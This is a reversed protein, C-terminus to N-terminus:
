RPQKEFTKLQNTGTILYINGMNDVSFNTYSGKITQTLKFTLLTDPSAKISDVSLLTFLVVILTKFVKM